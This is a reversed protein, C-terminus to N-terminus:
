TSAIFLISKQVRSRRDACMDMGDIGNFDARVCKVASM